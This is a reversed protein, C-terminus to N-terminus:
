GISPRCSATRRLVGDRACRRRRRHRQRQLDAHPSRWRPAGDGLLRAARSGASIVEAITAQAQRFVRALRTTEYLKGLYVAFDVERGAVEMSGVAWADLGPEDTLASLTLARSTTFNAVITTSDIAVPRRTLKLLADVYAAPIATDKDNLEIINKITKM